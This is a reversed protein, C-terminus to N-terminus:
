SVTLANAEAADLTGVADPLLRPLDVTFICGRGAINRANIEGGNATVSERAIALGLGLGSRDKSRQEFLAFLDEARGALGGCEDEIAISVCDAGAHTKV